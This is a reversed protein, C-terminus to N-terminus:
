AAVVGPYDATVASIPYIVGFDILELLARYLSLECFSTLWFLEEIRTPHSAVVECIAHAVTELEPSGHWMNLSTGVRLRADLPPLKELIIQFEDRQRVANIILDDVGRNWPFEERVDEVGLMPTFSFHGPLKEHLFIQDFADMGTLHHCRVCVPRGERFFIGAVCEEEANHILLEGTKSSGSITQVIAVIDFNALNGSFDQCNSKGSWREDNQLVRWSLQEALYLGFSPVKAIIEDLHELPVCQVSCMEAACATTTRVTRTVAEAAGLIDGRSFYNGAGTPLGDDSSVTIVGRSIIYLADSSDGAHFLITGTPLHRVYSLQGLVRLEIPKLSTCYSFFDRTIM